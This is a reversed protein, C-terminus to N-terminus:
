RAGIFALGGWLSPHEALVLTGFRTAVSVRGARLDALLRLQAQRLAEAGDGSATSYWARYFAPLLRRATEDPLDWLSAVVSRTGAAFFARTMGSIGDGTVPGDATRCGSLVVLDADLRLGYVEAATLRGDNDGGTGAGALAVYSAMPHADSIAGHAAIHVVATRGPATAGLRERMAQESAKTGTLVEVALGRGQLIRAVAAAEARAGPLAAFSGDRALASPLRPEGVVVARAPERPEHSVRRIQRLATLSPAYRVSAREVLYRGRSDVLTAFSLRALPGHPVILLRGDRPITHVFPEILVEFLRTRARRDPDRRRGPAATSGTPARVTSAPSPASAERVLRALEAGSVALRHM